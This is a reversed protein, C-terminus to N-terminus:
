KKSINPPIVIDEMIRMELESFQKEIQRSLKEKYEQNM